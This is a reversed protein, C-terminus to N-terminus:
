DAPLPAHCGYFKRHIEIYRPRERASAFYMMSIDGGDGDGDADEWIRLYQRDSEKGNVSSVKQVLLSLLLRKGFILSQLHILDVDCVDTCGNRGFRCNGALLLFYRSVTQIRSTTNHINVM